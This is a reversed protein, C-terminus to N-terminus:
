KTGFHSPLYSISFASWYRMLYHRAYYIITRMFAIQRFDFHMPARAEAPWHPRVVALASVIEGEFPLTLVAQFPPIDMPTRHFWRAEILRPEHQTMHFREFSRRYSIEFYIFGAAIM